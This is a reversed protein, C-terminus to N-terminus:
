AAPKANGCWIYGAGVSRVLGAVRRSWLALGQITRLRRSSVSLRDIRNPFLRDIAADDPQRGTSVVLSGAPYRKALEGMWRAIGGGMPPFDYTLLLQTPM